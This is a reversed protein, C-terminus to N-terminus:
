GTHRRCFQGTHGPQQNDAVFQQYQWVFFHIVCSGDARNEVQSKTEIIDPGMILSILKRVKKKMQKVKQQETLTEVEKKGYGGRQARTSIADFDGKEWTSNTKEISYASPMILFSGVILLSLLRFTTKPHSEDLLYQNM